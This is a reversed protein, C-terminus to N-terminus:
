PRAQQQRPEVDPVCAAVWGRFRLIAKKAPSSDGPDPELGPDDVAGFVVYKIDRTPVFRAREPDSNSYVPFGEVAISRTDSEGDELGGDLRHVVVKIRPLRQPAELTDTRAESM